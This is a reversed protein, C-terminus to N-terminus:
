VQKEKGEVHKRKLHNIYSEIDTRPYITLTVWGLSLRWVYSKFGLYIGAYKGFCLTISFGNM